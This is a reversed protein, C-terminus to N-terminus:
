MERAITTTAKLAAKLIPVKSFTAMLRARATNKSTVIAQKM